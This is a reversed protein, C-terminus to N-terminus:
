KDQYSNTCSENIRKNLKFNNFKMNPNHNLAKNINANNLIMKNQLKFKNQAM